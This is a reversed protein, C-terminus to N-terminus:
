TRWTRSRRRARRSRPPWANATAPRGTRASSSSAPSPPSRSRSASSARAADRGPLRGSPGHALAAAAARRLTGGPPARAGRSGPQEHMLRANGHVHVVAYNWTPVSPHAAYWSPSVYAHPGHFVALVGPQAELRRWHPNARAMHGLLTGFDGRARELLLPLHTIHPDIPDPSILTAFANDDLFAHLAALDREAFLKLCISCPWWRRPQRESRAQPGRCNRVMADVEALRQPTGVDTWLGSFREGSVRGERM